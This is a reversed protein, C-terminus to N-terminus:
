HTEKTEYVGVFQDVAGVKQDLLAAAEKLSTRDAITDIQGILRSFTTPTTAKREEKAIIWERLELRVPKSAVPRHKVVWFREPGPPVEDALNFPAPKTSTARKPM